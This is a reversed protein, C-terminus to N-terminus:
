TTKCLNTDWDFNVSNAMKSAKNSFSQHFCWRLGNVKTSSICVNLKSRDKNWKSTQLEVNMRKFTGSQNAWFMFIYHFFQSTFTWNWPFSTTSPINKKWKCFFRTTNPPRYSWLSSKSSTFEIMWFQWPFLHIIPSRCM